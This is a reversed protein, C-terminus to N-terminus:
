EVVHCDPRLANFQQIGMETIQTNFVEVEQLDPLQELLKLEADSIDTNSLGLVQLGTLGILYKVGASANQTAALDLVRLKSLESLYRFEEGTITTAHLNLQELDRLGSIHKLLSEDVHAGALRVRVIKGLTEIVSGGSAKIAAVAEIQPDAETQAVQPVVPAISDESKGKGDDKNMAAVPPDVPITSDVSRQDRQVSLVISIGLGALVALLFILLTAANSWGYHVRTEVAFTEGIQGAFCEATYQDRFRLKVWFNDGAIGDPDAVQIRVTCESLFAWSSPRALRVARISHAPYAVIAAGARSLKVETSNWTVVVRCGLLRSALPELRPDGGAYTCGVRDKAHPETAAQQRASAADRRSNQPQSAFTGSLVAEEFNTYFVDGHRSQSSASRNRDTDAADEPVEDADRQREDLKSLVDYARNIERIKLEAIPHIVPDHHFRDPHWQLVLKHYAARVELQSASMSLELIRYSDAPSM